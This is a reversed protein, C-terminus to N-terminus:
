MTTNAILIHEVKMCNALLLVDATYKFTYKFTFVMDVSLGTFCCDEVHILKNEPM